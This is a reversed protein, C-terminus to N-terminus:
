ALLNETASRRCKDEQELEIIPFQYLQFQYHHYSRRV